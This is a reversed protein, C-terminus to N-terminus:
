AAPKAASLATARSSWDVKLTAFMVLTLVAFASLSGALLAYDEMQLILYLLGYLTTFVAAMALGRRASKLVKGVYVSLMLGTMASAAAYARDFGAHEAISLLIVYFLVMAIGVFAYQVAHIRAGSMLELFFAAGFATAIFLIGYKLARDVLSYSNVPVILSVGFDSGFFREFLGARADFVQPVARALHPISWSASFSSSDIERSDPLFAGTFSPHPWDSALRVTTTRAVPALAIGDAGTFDLDVDFAFAPQSMAPAADGAAPPFPNAHIGTLRAEGEPVDGFGPEFPVSRGEALELAVGNKLSSLSSLNILVAAAKWDVRSAEPDFASVDVPGFRGALRLNSRYVSVEFISRRLASTTASGDVALEEPLFAAYRREERTETRYGAKETKAVIYPVVLVPGRVTQHSGWGSTVEDRADSARDQRESVLAWVIQLPILMLLALLGISFFKGSPSRLLGSVSSAGPISHPRGARPLKPPRLRSAGDEATEGNAGHGNTDGAGPKETDSM